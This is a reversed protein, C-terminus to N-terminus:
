VLRSTPGLLNYTYYKKGWTPGVLFFYSTLFSPEPVFMEPIAAIAIQKKITQAIRAFHQRQFLSKIAVNM